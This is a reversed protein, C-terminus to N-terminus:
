KGSKRTDDSEVKVRDGDKAVGEDSVEVRMQGSDDSSDNL